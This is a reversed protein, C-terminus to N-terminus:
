LILSRSCTYTNKSPILQSVQYSCFRSDQGWVCHSHTEGENEEERSQAAEASLIRHDCLYPAFGNKGPPRLPFKLLHFCVLLM